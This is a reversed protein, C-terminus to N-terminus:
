IEETENQKEELYIKATEYIDLSLIDTCSSKEIIYLYVIDVLEEFEKDSLFGVEPIEAINSIILAKLCVEYVNHNLDYSLKVAQHTRTKSTTSM